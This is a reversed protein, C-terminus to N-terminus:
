DQNREHRIDRIWGAFSVAITLLGIAIIFTSAVLGWVTLTVGFALAAPWWTPEALQEPKPTNWGDHDRATTSQESSDKM